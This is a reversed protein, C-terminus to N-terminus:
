GGLLGGDIGMAVFLLALYLLSYKYLSMPSVTLPRRWLRWAEFVFVGGLVAASPLYILWLDGAPALALSVAVLVVSYVLIQRRTEAPGATVPLMPVGADAYDDKLKLSLAWFHPPTWMFIIAFM